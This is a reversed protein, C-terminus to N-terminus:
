ALTSPSDSIVLPYRRSGTLRLRTGAMARYANGDPRAELDPERIGSGLVAIKEGVEIVAERYCLEIMKSWDRNVLHHEALFQAQREGETLLGPAAPSTEPQRVMLPLRETRYVHDFDITIRAQKPDVIARHGDDEIMFVVGRREVALRKWQTSNGDRRGRQEVLAIYYVCPRGTLPATLQEGEFPHAAGTVRGLTDEPLSALSWRPARRLMRRLRLESGLYALASTGVVVTTSLAAFLVTGPDM